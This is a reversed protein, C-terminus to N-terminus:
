GGGGLIPVEAEQAPTTSATASRALARKCHVCVFLHCCREASILRGNFEYGTAQLKARGCRGDDGTKFRM